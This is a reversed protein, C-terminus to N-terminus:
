YYLVANAECCKLLEKVDQCRFFAAFEFEEVGLLLRSIDDIGHSCHYLFAVDGAGDEDFIGVVVEGVGDVCSVVGGEEGDDSFFVWDAAGVGASVTARVRFAVEAWELLAIQARVEDVCRLLGVDGEGVVVDDRVDGM